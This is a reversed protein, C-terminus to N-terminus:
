PALHTQEVGITDNVIAAAYDNRTLQNKPLALFYM